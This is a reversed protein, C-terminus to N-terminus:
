REKKRWIAYTMTLVEAILLLLPPLFGFGWAYNQWFSIEREGEKERVREIHNGTLSLRANLERIEQM